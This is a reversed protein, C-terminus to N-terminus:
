ESTGTIRNVIDAFDPEFTPDRKLPAAIDVHSSGDANARVRAWVRRHPFFFVLCSGLILLISGLWVVWSGPDHSITLGTYQRNRDFSYTVDGIVTSKGQEVVQVTPDEVGDTHVELAMTGAPLDALVQGSAAEIVYVSVKQSPIEFQGISQQGDTSKWQLPVTESFVTQGGVTAKIDAGVGFFAQHFWVGGYRLPDNVRVEQRAVEQGDRTLQVDAVYDKPSGDDYYSDNFSLATLTLGTGHGVEVAVGVPAIFSDDKFGITGSVVFGAMIVVFSLHAVVTGFPGWRFKDAYLDAGKKTAASALVRFRDHNLSVLVQESAAAVGVPLDFSASLPAHSYFTDTMSTRPRTAIRWLRPARNISCALISLALLGFLALFYWSTFVRFLGLASLIPAWGGYKLKPGSDYWAQYTAPDAVAEPSAQMLLTGALTLIGLLLIVWLGTRMSILFRWVAGFFDGRRGPREQPSATGDLVDVGSEAHDVHGPVAATVSSSERVKTSV